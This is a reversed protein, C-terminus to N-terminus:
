AVSLGLHLHDLSTLALVSELELDLDGALVMLELSLLFLVPLPKVRLLPPDLIQFTLELLNIPITTPLILTFISPFNQIFMYDLLLILLYLIHCLLFLLQADFSILLLLTEYLNLAAKQLGLVHILWSQLTDSSYFIRADLLAVWCQKGMVFLIRFM